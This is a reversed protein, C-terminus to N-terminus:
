AAPGAALAARHADVPLRAQVLWGGGPTPGASLQGGYLLVRERLGLLGHGAAAPSGQTGAAAVNAVEIVLAHGRFGMSVTTRAMGAHKLVNTLSEQVVRYAALDLGAPLPVPVAEAAFDVELGAARVREILGTLQAIGPQPHLAAAQPLEPGPGPDAPEAPADAIAAPNLLDLLSRLEAMAARGSSEVALLADRADDPATSIVQRAAGAQVIMVSVNHTVVDHLESAIRAREQALATRTVEAHEAQLRVLRAQSEGAQSRWQHVAQGLIIVPILAVLVAARAPMKLPEAVSPFVTAVLVGAVPLSVMAAIRYKSHVVASYAAIVVALLSFANDYIHPMLISATVIVWLVTLPRIRRLALPVTTAMALLVGLHHVPNGSGVVACQGAGNVGCPGAHGKGITVLMAVTVLGALAVDLALSKGTVPSREERALVARAARRVLDAPKSAAPGAAAPQQGIM